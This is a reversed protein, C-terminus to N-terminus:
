IMGVAVVVIAVVAVKLMASISIAVVGLRRCTSVMVMDRRSVTGAEAPGLVSGARLDAARSSVM